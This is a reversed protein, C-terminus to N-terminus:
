RRRAAATTRERTPAPQGSEHLMDDVTSVGKVREVRRIVESRMADDAVEGRLVVRGNEASVNISGKPIKQGRFLETRVRDALTVDDNSAGAGNGHRVAELKGAADSQVRRAARGAERSARRAAAAGQDALRARRARGRAPDLLLAATAGVAAAAAALLLAAGWSPGDPEPAVARRGRHIADRSGSRADGLLREILQM